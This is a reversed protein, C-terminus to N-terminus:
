KGINERKSIVLTWLAGFLDFSGIAILMPNVQFVLTMVVTSIFFFIRGFITAKFFATQEHLSSYLYYIGATFTFLGLMRIWIEQTPAFGFIPLIGNPIIMMGVGMLFLYFSYVRITFATKSV